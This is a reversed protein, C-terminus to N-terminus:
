RRLRTLRTFIASTHRRSACMGLPSFRVNTSQILLAGLMGAALGLRIVGKFNFYEPAGRIRTLLDMDAAPQIDSMFAAAVVPEGERVLEAAARAEVREAAALAEAQEEEEGVVAAAAGEGAVEVAM